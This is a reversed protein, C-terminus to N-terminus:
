CSASRPSSSPWRRRRESRASCSCSACCAWWRDVGAITVVIAPATALTFGFYDSKLAWFSYAAVMAVAGTALNIIGSGRYTVVVAMAIGAIVAGAGLGLLVFLVIENM